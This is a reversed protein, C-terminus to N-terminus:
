EGSTGEDRGAPRRPPEILLDSGPTTRADIAIQAAAEARACALCLVTAGYRVWSGLGCRDCRDFPGVRISGLGEVADPWPYSYAQAVKGSTDSTHPRSPTQRPTKPSASSPSTRDQVKSSTYPPVVDRGKRPRFMPPLSSYLNSM